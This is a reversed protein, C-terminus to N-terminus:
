QMETMPRPSAIRSPPLYLPSESLVCLLFPNGGMQFFLRSRKLLTSPNLTDPMVQMLGVAGAHSVASADFGSECYIVAFVIEEPIEYMAAYKEVYEHYKVPHAAEEVTEFLLNYLLALLFAIVLLLSIVSVHRSVPHQKSASRM